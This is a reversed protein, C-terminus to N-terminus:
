LGAGGIAITVPVRLLARDAATRAPGSITLRVGAPLLSSSIWSPIWRGSMMGGGQYQVDLGTAASDLEIVVRRDRRWETFEAVVGREATREDRDVYLRVVVDGEGLPTVATTLFSIEDDPLKDTTRDIGSFPPTDQVTLRAGDIWSVVARRTAADASIADAHALAARRRDLISAFAAYGATSVLATIALGVILELLTMGHRPTM